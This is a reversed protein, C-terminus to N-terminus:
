HCNKKQMEVEVFIGGFPLSSAFKVFNSRGYIKIKQAEAQWNQAECKGIRYIKKVMRMEDECSEVRMTNHELRFHTLRTNFKIWCSDNWRGLLGGHVFSDIFKTNQAYEITCRLSAPPPMPPTSSSSFLTSFKNCLTWWWCWEFRLERELLVYIKMKEQTKTSPPLFHLTSNIRSDWREDNMKPQRLFIISINQGTRVLSSHTFGWMM